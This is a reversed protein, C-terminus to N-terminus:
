VPTPKLRLDPKGFIYSVGTKGRYGIENLSSFSFLAVYQLMNEEM